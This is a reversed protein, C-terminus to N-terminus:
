KAAMLEKAAQGVLQRGPRNGACWEEPSFLEFMGLKTLVPVAAKIERGLKEVEANEDDDSAAGEAILREYARINYLLTAVTGTPVAQGDALKIVPFAGLKQNVQALKNLEENTM